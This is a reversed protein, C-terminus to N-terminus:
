FIKFIIEFHVPSIKEVKIVKSSPEDVENARRKRLQRQTIVLQAEGSWDPDIIEDSDNPHSSLTAGSPKASFHTVDSDDQSFVTSDERVHLNLIDGTSAVKKGCGRRYKM